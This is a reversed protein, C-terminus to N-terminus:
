GNSGGGLAKKWTECLLVIQRSKSARKKLQKIQDAQRKALAWANGRSPQETTMMRSERRSEAECARQGAALIEDSAMGPLGSV